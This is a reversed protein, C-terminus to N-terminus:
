TVPNLSDKAKRALNPYTAVLRELGTLAADYQEPTQYHSDPESLYGAATAILGSITEPPTYAPWAAKKQDYDLLPDPNLDLHFPPPQGDRLARTSETLWSQKPISM